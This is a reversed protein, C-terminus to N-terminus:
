VPIDDKMNILEKVPDVLFVYDVFVNAFETVQDQSVPAKPNNHLLLTLAATLSSQRVILVQKRAREEPTEYNSGTVRGSPRGSTAPSGPTAATSAVSGTVAEGSVTATGGTVGKWQWYDKADKEIEVNYVEGAKMKGVQAFMAKDVFDLIKKGAVKGDQKFAVEIVNYGGKATTIKYPASVDIVSIQIQM